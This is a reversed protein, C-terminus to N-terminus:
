IKGSEVKVVPKTVPSTVVPPKKTEVKPTSVPIKVTEVKPKSVIESGSVKPAEVKPPSVPTSSPNKLSEFSKSYVKQQSVLYDRGILAMIQGKYGEQQIKASVNDWEQDTLRYLSFSGDKNKVIAELGDHSTAAKEAAEFTSFKNEKVNDLYTDSIKTGTGEIGQKEVSQNETRVSKDWFTGSISFEVLKPNFTAINGKQAMDVIKQMLEPPADDPAKYISYTNDDNKIIAEDGKLNKALKRAEDINSIPKENVQVLTVGGIQITM